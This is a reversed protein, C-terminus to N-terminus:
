FTEAAATQSPDEVAEVAAIQSPDEAPAAYYIYIYKYM